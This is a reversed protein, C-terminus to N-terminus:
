SHRLKISSIQIKCTFDDTFTLVKLTTIKYTAVATASGYFTLEHKM